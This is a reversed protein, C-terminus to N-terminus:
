QSLKRHDWTILREVLVKVAVRNHAMADISRKQNDEYPAIYRDFVSACTKWVMAPDSIIEANGVLQVGRLEDYSAGDEVLCTITPNRELNRVKQAKHKTEFAVVGDLFGYWMAVAHITSDGNMTCVVMSRRDRLFAEVEDSSM